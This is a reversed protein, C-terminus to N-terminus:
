SNNPFNGAKALSANSYRSDNSVEKLVKICEPFHIIQEPNELELELTAFENSFDYVDMEFNQNQFIFNYRVKRIVPCDIKKQILMSNYDESSIEKENEIRTVATIFKKETYYFRVDNNHMIRRIRRQLGNEGDNLYIQTIDLKEAADLNKVDPIKILFKREIEYNQNMFM